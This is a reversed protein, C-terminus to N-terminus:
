DTIGVGLNELHSIKYFGSPEPVPYFRARERRPYLVTGAGVATLLILRSMRRWAFHHRPQYKCHRTSKLQIGDERMRNSNAYIPM